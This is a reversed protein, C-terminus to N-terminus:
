IRNMWVNRYRSAIDLVPRASYNPPTSTAPTAILMIINEIFDSNNGTQKVKVLSSLPYESCTSSVCLAGKM